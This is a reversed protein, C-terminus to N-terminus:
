FLAYIPMVKLAIEANRAQEYVDEQHLFKYPYYVAHGRIQSMMQEFAQQDFTKDRSQLSSWSHYEDSPYIKFVKSYVMTNTDVINKMLGWAQEHAPFPIDVGFHEQFIARRFAHIKPHVMLGEVNLSNEGEICVGLESDRNGLMSRDNINASGLILRKDDIIM